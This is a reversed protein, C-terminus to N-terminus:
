ASNSGGSVDKIALDFSEYLIYLRSEPLSSYQQDNRRLRTCLQQAKYTVCLSWYLTFRLGCAETMIANFM